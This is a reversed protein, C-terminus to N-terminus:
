QIDPGLEARDKGPVALRDPLRHELQRVALLDDIKRCLGIDEYAARGIM